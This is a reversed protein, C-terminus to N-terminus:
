GRNDVETSQPRLLFRRAGVMVKGSRKLWGCNKIVEKTWNIKSNLEPM